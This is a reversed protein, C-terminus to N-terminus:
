WKYIAIDGPEVVITKVGQAQATSSGNKLIRSVGAACNLTLNMNKTFDRNVVVMYSSSKNNIFSVLAGLGTTKVFRIPKPLIQLPKTGNPLPGTFYVNSMKCGVFVGSLASIERNMEQVLKYVPTKADGNNVLPANNFNGVTPDYLTLYTFYQIAQAGYALDSYVQLRLMALNPMPYPSFSTSLAFAWFPTNHRKTTAAVLELNQYWEPRISVNTTGIIPYHDFSLYPTHVESIYKNLYDQYNTAGLQGPTAFNPLLNVYCIHKSDIARIVKIKAALSAFEGAGPEDKIFYGAVAPNNMFHKVTAEPNSTLEPCAVYLKINSKQALALAKDMAQISSFPYYSQTIGAAAMDQYAALNTQNEPVGIWAITPIRVKIQKTVNDGTSLKVKTLPNNASCNLLLVIVAIFLLISKKM